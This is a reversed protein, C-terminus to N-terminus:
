IIVESLELVDKEEAMKKRLKYKVEILFRRIAERIFESRSPWLGERVLEDIEHVVRISLRITIPISKRFDDSSM